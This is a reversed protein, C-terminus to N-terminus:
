AVCKNRLWELTKRNRLQVAVYDRYDPSSVRERTEADGAPVRTLIRDIEKDLEEDTVTINEKKSIAKILVATRIRRQAQPAFDLKLEDATKKLSALYASWEMGQEEVGHQLEHVMRRIEENLLLEPVDSFSSHDVLKDLLEIESSERARQDHEAQLNEKLKDKLEQLDKLGVGQGFADDLPPLTLEHVSKVNATFEVDQGALHKQFHGEPFKLTFTRKEGAKSGVLQEAFGPIYHAENLSVRHDRATGGELAVHDKHMDLDILVLDENTAARDVLTETRRMRRMEELANAVDEDTADKKKIEVRCEAYDPFTTVSPALPSITTFKIDQGPVLQEVSVAPSGVTELSEGLVTKVYQARVIRELATEWIRMEGYARKADEYTAKGPRFGPIPKATSLERVAEDLYPKAEDATVVFEIKVESKPLQTIKPQSM